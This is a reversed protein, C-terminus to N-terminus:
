LRARIGIKDSSVSVYMNSLFRNKKNFNSVGSKDSKTDKRRFLLQNIGEAIVAAGAGKLANEATNDTKETSPSSSMAKKAGEIGVNLSAGAAGAIVLNGVVSRKNPSTLLTLASFVGYGLEAGVAAQTQGNM